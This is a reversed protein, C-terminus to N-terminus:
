EEEKKIGPHVPTEIIEETEYMRGDEGRKVKRVLGKVTPQKPLDLEIQQEVPCGNEDITTRMVVVKGREYDMRILRDAM